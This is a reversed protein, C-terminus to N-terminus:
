MEAGSEGTSTIATQNTLFGVRKGRVLHASHSAKGVIRAKTEVIREKVNAAM